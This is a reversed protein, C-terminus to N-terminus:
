QTNGNDSRDNKKDLFKVLVPMFINLKKQEEAEYVGKLKYAMDLGAKVGQVDIKGEKDTAQLLELHKSVLLDDPIQEAISKIANQIKDSRILRHGKVGAYNEDEIDYVEKAAQTANNGNQIYEEVFEKEKPKM